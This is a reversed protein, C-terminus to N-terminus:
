GSYAQEIAALQAEVRPTMATKDLWRCLAEFAVPCFAVGIDKRMIDLTTERSFGKRYPRKATLAEYVDAVALIRAELSLVEGPLRRHYGRGDLREHHAAAVDAFHDFNSVRRLIRETLDPHRRIAEFEAESPHDPKDLVLNSVGLKGLDHLLAAREVDRRMESVYGLEAAIGGAIEAVSESHRFTWPSKADIVRAFGLCIRDFGDQEVIRSPGADSESPEWRELLSRPNPGYTTSWFDRDRRFAFLADVLDPDFWGGKRLLAVEYAEDLGETTVFVEVTQALCAIRALLSIEEGAIGCPHGRGDWHEDLHRIAIATAESMGISRAVEAGRECRIETLKRVGAEGERAMAALQMAKQIPSAGPALHSLAFRFAETIRSWDTTKFDRKIGRDDAAFLSTVKAANSSCGLDKLLTAYFLSERDIEPLGIESALRMAILCSRVAHNEPQGETLDLATSLAAVLETLSIPEDSLLRAPAEVGLTIAM